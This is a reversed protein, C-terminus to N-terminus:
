LPNWIVPLRRHLPVKNSVYINIYHENISKEEKRKEEENLNLTVARGMEGPANLDLPPKEYVPKKLQENDVDRGWPAERRNTSSVDGFNRRFFIMYGVLTAGFILFLLKPRTWRRYVAMTPASNPQPKM